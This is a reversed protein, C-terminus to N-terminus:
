QIIDGGSKGWMILMILIGMVLVILPLYKSFVINTLALQNSTDIAVPANAFGQYINVIGSAILIDIFLLLIFFFMLTPTFKTSIASIIVGLHCGLFLLFIMWDTTPASASQIIQRADDATTDPQMVGSTVWFNNISNSMMLTLLGILAAIILIVLVVPLMTIDGKRNM